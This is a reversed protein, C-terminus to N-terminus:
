TKVATPLGPTLRPRLGNAPHGDRGPPRAQGPRRHGAPAHLRRGAPELGPHRPCRLRPRDPRSRPARDAQAREPARRGGHGGVTGPLSTSAAAPHDARDGPSFRAPNPMGEFQMLLLNRHDETVTTPDGFAAAFLPNWHLLQWTADYVALPHTELRELLRRVSGPILRPVRHPDASHGALRMLYAQEADSLQLARGLATCVQASPNAARGQELRVVYEISIGALVALEERRLGPARRPAKHPIGVSAPELRDRWARLARGLDDM